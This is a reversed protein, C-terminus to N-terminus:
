TLILLIKNSRMLLPIEVTFCVAETKFKSGESTETAHSGVHTLMGFRQLHTYLLSTGMIMDGRSAFM